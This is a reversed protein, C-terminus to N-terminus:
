RRTSATGSQLRIPFQGYGTSIFFGSLQAVRHHFESQVGQVILYLGILALFVPTGYVTLSRAFDYIAQLKSRDAESSSGNTM